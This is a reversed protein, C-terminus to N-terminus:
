VAHDSKIAAGDAADAKMGTNPQEAALLVSIVCRDFEDVDPHLNNTLKKYYAFRQLKKYDEDSLEITIKM